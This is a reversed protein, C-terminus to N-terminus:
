RGVSNCSWTSDDRVIQFREGSANEATISIRGTMEERIETIRLECQDARKGFFRPYDVAFDPLNVVIEAPFESGGGKPSPFPMIADPKPLRTVYLRVKSIWTFYNKGHGKAPLLSFGSLSNASFLRLVCQGVERDNELTFLEYKWIQRPEDSKVLNSRIKEETLYVKARVLHDGQILMVSGVNMKIERVEDRNTTVDHGEQGRCVVGQLTDAIVMLMVFRAFSNVKTAM